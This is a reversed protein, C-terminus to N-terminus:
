SKHSVGDSTSKEQDIEKLGLFSGVSILGPTVSGGKLDVIEFEIGQETACEGVCVIEGNQVVVRGEGNSLSGVREPAFYEAVNTFIVNKSTKKSRLEPNGRTLVAEKAEEDWKGSRTVNQAELPKEITHPHLIQPIGDIYTQKPTAGLTLPFSDWVVIDADYGVRVYGVRHDLGIAKAPITTVSSLAKSYNLGYHHGQAAEYVLYRSNLVPHDSKFAVDIGNETLVKAAFESGRYSEKKYRANTAFITVTPPEDGYVSKLLDPVLYAEHAHHFASVHFKFENSIRVLDTLDVTEYCHINVKVQGRIVDALAEWELSTPFPEKQSKPDECWREQKAKLESGETYARRFDYATDLRTQSYVRSPNEGCAHKIHRWAHTRHWSGNRIEFAPEVLMSQPTNEATWRPKFPYATGGIADSSSHAEKRCATLSSESASGPLVLMTTIGGAISGNFAEDHTDFGDLSRLWPQVSGKLSNTDDSGRLHPSSDVGLHSHM